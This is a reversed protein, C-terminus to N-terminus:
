RYANLNLIVIRTSIGYLTKLRSCRRWAMRYIRAARQAKVKPADESYKSRAILITDAAHRAAVGAVARREGHVIVIPDHTLSHSQHRGAIRSWGQIENASDDGLIQPAIFV